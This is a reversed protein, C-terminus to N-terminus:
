SAEKVQVSNDLYSFPHHFCDMVKDQDPFILHSEGTRRDEVTVGVVKFETNYDMTVVIGGNERKILEIDHEDTV